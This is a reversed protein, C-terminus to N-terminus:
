KAAAELRNPNDRIGLNDLCEVRIGKETLAPNPSKDTSVYVVEYGRRKLELASIFAVQATGGLPYSSNDIVIVTKLEM